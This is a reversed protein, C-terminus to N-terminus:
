QIAGKKNHVVGEREPKPENTLVTLIDLGLKRQGIKEFVRYVDIEGMTPTEPRYIGAWALIQYLVRKGAESGYFVMRFDRYRDMKSTVGRNSFARALDGMVEQTEDHSKKEISLWDM